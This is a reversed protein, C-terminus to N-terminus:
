VERFDGDVVDDNKGSGGAQSNDGATGAGQAGSFNGMDPGAGAAGNAGAGAGAGAAQAQQEYMKTFVAQADKELKEKAAKVDNIQDDTMEQDKTKDLLDRVAKIDDEVTAKQAADVKDGVDNLAKETQFAFSDAENRVDIGEKRKKDQAEYEAAEKVAKDIDNDSM